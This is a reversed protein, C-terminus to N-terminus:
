IQFHLRTGPEANPYPYESLGALLIELKEWWEKLVARAHGHVPKLDGKPGTVQLGHGVKYGLSYGHAAVWETAEVVNRPPRFSAIIEGTRTVTVMTQM